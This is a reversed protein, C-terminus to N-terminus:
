NEIAFHHVTNEGLDGSVCLNLLLHGVGLSNLHHVDMALPQGGTHILFFTQLKLFSIITPANIKAINYISYKLYFQNTPNVVLEQSLM